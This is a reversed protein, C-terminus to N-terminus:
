QAHTSTSSWALLFLVFSLWAAGIIRCCWLKTEVIQETQSVLGHIVLLNEPPQNELMDPTLTSSAALFSASQRVSLSVNPSQVFILTQQAIALLPADQQSLVTAQMFVEGLVTFLPSLGFSLLRTLPSLCVSLFLTLPSGPLSLALSIRHYVTDM